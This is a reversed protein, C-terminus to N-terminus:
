SQGSWYKLRHTERMVVPDAAIANLKDKLVQADDYVDQNSLPGVKVRFMGDDDIFMEWPMSRPM